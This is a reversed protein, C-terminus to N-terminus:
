KNFRKKPLVEDMEEGKGKEEEEEQALRESEIRLLNERM